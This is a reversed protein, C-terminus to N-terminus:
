KENNRVNKGRYAYFHRLKKRKKKKKNILKNTIPLINKM